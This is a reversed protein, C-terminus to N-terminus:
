ESSIDPQEIVRGEEQSVQPSEPHDAAESKESDSQSTAFGVLIYM